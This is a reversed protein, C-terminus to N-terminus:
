RYGTVGLDDLFQKAAILDANGFGEMFRDYVPQLSAPDSM